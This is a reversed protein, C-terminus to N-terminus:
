VEPSPFCCCNRGSGKARYLARDAAEVLSDSSATGGEWLAAVGISVTVPISQGEFQLAAEEVVQRLREALIGAQWQDTDRCLVAFEEGGFRAVVDEARVTSELLQCTQQLM